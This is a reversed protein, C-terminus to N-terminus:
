WGYEGILPVFSVAALTETTFRGDEARTIRLLQERHRRGVPIVLRGGVTLQQKLPEPVQPAGATACIADYPAHDALGSSGDDRHVTVNDYGMGALRTEAQEALEAIAEVTHVQGAIRSLVAAGYGSGAGIELM